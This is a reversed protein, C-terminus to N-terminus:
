LNDKLNRIQVDSELDFDKPAQGPEVNIRLRVHVLKIDLPNAPTTLPTDSESGSYDGDYYSFVPNDAENRVYKSIVTTEEDEAPYTLPNGSAETVGKIFDSGDLYYRVKEVALDRDYDAFFIFEFEDASEISYAGTDGPLAERAEKVLKEVGRRAETIATAQGFSFSQVSYAQRIFLWTMFMVFLFIGIAILVEILTLGREENKYKNM